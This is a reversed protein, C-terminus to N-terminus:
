EMSKSDNNATDITMAMGNNSSGLLSVKASSRPTKMGASHDDDDDDFEDDDLQIEHSSDDLDMAAGAALLLGSTPAGSSTRRPLLVAAADGDEDEEDIAMDLMKLQELERSSYRIAGGSAAVGTKAGVGTSTVEASAVLLSANPDDNEDDNREFDVKKHKDVDVRVQVLTNDVDDPDIDDDYHDITLRDYEGRRGSRNSRSVLGVVSEKIKRTSESGGGGAASVGSVEGKKRKKKKKRSKLDIAESSTDSQEIGQRRNNGGLCWPRIVYRVVLWGVLLVFLVPVALWGLNSDSDATSGGSDGGDDGTSSM